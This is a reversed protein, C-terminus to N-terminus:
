TENQSMIIVYKISPGWCNNGVTCMSIVLIADDTLRSKYSYFIGAFCHWHPSTEAMKPCWFFPPLFVLPHPEKKNKVLFFCCRDCCGGSCGTILPSRWVPPVIFVFKFSDTTAKWCVVIASKINYLLRSVSGPCCQVLLSFALWPQM